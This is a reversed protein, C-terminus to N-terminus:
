RLVVYRQNNLPGVVCKNQADILRISATHGRKASMLALCPHVWDKITQVLGAIDTNLARGPSKTPMNPPRSIQQIMVAPGGLNTILKDENQAKFRVGLQAVRKDADADPIMVFGGKGLFYNNIWLEKKPWDDYHYMMEIDASQELAYVLLQCFTCSSRSFIDAYLGLCIGEYLTTPVVGDSVMYASLANTFLWPFYLRSCKECLDGASPRAHLWPWDEQVAKDGDAFFHYSASAITPTLKRISVPM